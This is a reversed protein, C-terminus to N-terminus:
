KRHANEYTFFPSPMVKKDFCFGMYFAQCCLICENIVPLLIMILLAAFEIELPKKKIIDSLLTKERWKGWEM